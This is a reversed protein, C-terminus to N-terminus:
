RLASRMLDDNWIREWIWLLQETDRQASVRATQTPVPHPNGHEAVKFRFVYHPEMGMRLDTIIVDHDSQKVAYFGHTFWQLRKVPWHEALGDLLKETSPYHKFQIEKDRDFLSYFGEHYGRGDMVLVRWLMTNFATPVTLVNQYAINQRSLAQRATQEVYVKAGISWALYMTSLALCITNFRHGRDIQRSMIAAATAGGILPISYAPDIIFLTSWMVPPTPLPWLIQTGYVTLGDLLIHTSFALFVLMFWRRRYERTAPHVKLILWVILPTLATLVFISHSFGRHFTFSKVADAYPILVDLDPLLGCLGGWFLARRGIMRGLTTEGVAAGLAIQTVTDM